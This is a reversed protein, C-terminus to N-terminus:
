AIRAVIGPLPSTGSACPSFSKWPRKISKVSQLLSHFQPKIFDVYRKAPSRRSLGPSSRTLSAMAEAVKQLAPGAKDFAEQQRLCFVKDDESIRNDAKIEVASFKEMLSM